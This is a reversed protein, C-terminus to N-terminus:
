KGMNVAEVSLGANETNGMNVAEVSYGVNEEKGMKRM